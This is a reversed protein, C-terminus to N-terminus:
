LSSDPRSSHCITWIFHCFHWKEPIQSGGWMEASQWVM